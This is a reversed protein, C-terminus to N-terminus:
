VSTLFFILSILFCKRSLFFNSLLRYVSALTVGTDKLRGMFRLPSVHYVGSISFSSFVYAHVCVCVSEWEWVIWWAPFKAPIDYKRHNFLTSTLKPHFLNQNWFLMRQNRFLVGLGTCLIPEQRFLSSCFSDFQQPSWTAAPEQLWSSARNSHLNDVWLINRLRELSRNVRPLHWQM